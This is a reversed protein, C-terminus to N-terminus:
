PMFMKGCFGNVENKAECDNTENPKYAKMIKM